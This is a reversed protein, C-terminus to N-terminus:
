DFGSPPAERLARSMEVLTVVIGGALTLDFRRDAVFGFSRYLPEGPLTAALTMRRFGAAWADAMCRTMLRSGLGRRAHGPAVFFARIRAADRDPDLLPDPGAGKTRDGGFLTGRRSWGGAALLAGEDEVVFYTGDEILQTDVGFVQETIAHAQADDYFGRSLVVGSTAILADLASRDAHTALRLKM